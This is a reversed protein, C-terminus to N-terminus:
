AKRKAMDAKIAKDRSGKWEDTGSEIKGDGDHDKKASAERGQKAKAKLGSRTKGIDALMKARDARTIVKLEAEDVDEVSEKKSGFTPRKSKSAAYARDSAKVDPHNKNKPDDADVRSNTYNDADRKLNKAKRAKQIANLKDSSGAAGDIWRGAKKVVKGVVGEEVEEKRAKRKRDDRRDDAEISRDLNDITSDIEPRNGKSGLAKDMARNSAGQAKDAGKTFASRVKRSKVNGKADKAPMKLESIPSNRIKAEEVEQNIKAMADAISNYFKQNKANFPGPQM